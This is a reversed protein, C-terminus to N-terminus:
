LKHILPQQAAPELSRLQQRLEKLTTTAAILGSDGVAVWQGRYEHAHQRLWAFAQRRETDKRESPRVTPPTLARRLRNIAPQELAGVPILDLLKRAAAIHGKQLLDRIAMVRSVIDPNQLGALSALPHLHFEAQGQYPVRIVDFSTVGHRPVGLMDIDFSATGQCKGLHSAVLTDRPAAGAPVQDVAWRGHQGLPHRRPPNSVLEAAATRAAAGM